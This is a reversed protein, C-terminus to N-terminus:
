VWFAWNVCKHTVFPFSAMFKFLLLSLFPWPLFQLSSLPFTSLRIKIKFFLLTQSGHKMPWISREGGAAMKTGVPQAGIPPQRQRTWHLMENDVKGPRIGTVCSRCPGLRLCSLCVGVLACLFFEVDRFFTACLFHVHIALVNRRGDFGSAQYFANQLSFSRFRIRPCLTSFLLDYIKTLYNMSNLSSM